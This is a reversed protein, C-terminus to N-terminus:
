IFVFSVDRPAHLIEVAPILANAVFTDDDHLSSCDRHIHHLCLMRGM